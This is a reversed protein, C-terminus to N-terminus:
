YNELDQFTVKENKKFCINFLNFVDTRGLLLPVDEILSWAVKTEFEKDGIKMFVTKVIIPIGKEGIGSIEIINDVDNLEFGLADGVSKPILTIDAGSDVYLHEPIEIGKYNFIVRAVPRMISGFLRSEEKKYDFEVEM